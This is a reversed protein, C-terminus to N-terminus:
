IGNLRRDKGDIRFSKDSGVRSLIAGGFEEGFDKANRNTTILTFIKRKLDNSRRFDIINYLFNRFGEGPSIVGLDDLILLETDKYMVELSGTQNNNQSRFDEWKTKLDSQNIFIAKDEDRGFGEKYPNVCEYLCKAIHTKGTGNKGALLIFRSRLENPNPEEFGKIIRVARKMVTKVEDPQDCQKLRNWSELCEKESKLYNM